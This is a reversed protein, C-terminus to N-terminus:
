TPSGTSHLRFIAAVLAEVDIPKAFHYEFGAALARQRDEARAFATIAIAPLPKAGTAKEAARVAAIFSYGDMGPLAIDSIIIDAPEKHLLELADSANAAQVVKAGAQLLFKSFVNRTETDDELFLIRVGALPTQGMERADAGPSRPRPEPMTGGVNPLPLRVVFTSGKDKGASQATIRGGHMEVLQRSISLGLGLGGHVRTSSPEAQRFPEFIRPLFDPAIGIGTDSVRIEVERGHRQLDVSVAGGTPTFKVANNVLNWVIQRLRASDSRVIGINPGCHVEVKISKERAVPSVAEVAQRVLGALDTERKELRLKGAAIRSTDLLDNVLQSQAEASRLIADLGDTVDEPSLSKTRLMKAWMMIASLPTRLEHGLVALFEDKMRAAATAEGLANMERQRLQVNETEVDRLTTIDVFTIVIGAIRNDQTRYPLARRMYARNSQSYVENELPVLHDLVSQADAILNPDTFKQALDKLPRGIDGPIIDVLDKMAPTYRRIRLQLDLFIVGIATSSLLSALDNATAEQEEVKSQLQSNVTTLEENLSQLEEKSTELEENTSQFEENVSTLEENTAKMEENATQLEEVTSQLEDRVRQLEEELGDRDKPASTPTHSPKAPEEHEEFAVLFHGAALKPDLPTVTIVVRRRGDPTESVGDRVTVPQNEAAARHLATRLTGRIPDRALILLERTPEGRPQELFPSCDGHYFVIQHMRDVTVAAPTFRELLMRNTLQALSARSPPRSEADQESAPAPSTHPIPFEVMGHRTPGVRRFIRWKKDLPEFLSEAGSTSESNGLFLAGGERLGFHLLALVRAQTRPELYILLNRCTCIDLRSFPPDQLVNQPAFVVLERLEKKVRYVPEEKDFFRALRAESIESEIGMPFIGNRAHSLARDATDTAFIKIDFHKGAAEAAEILLIGLSYAEEGSSCATVWCRLPAGDAREAVLPVIVSRYLADWAEADRFFGTVHILLDDALASVELPTQRLQKVYESFNLIQNLGMRREVRRLLTPRKYGSFDKRTRARLLALIESFHQSRPPEKVELDRGSAYPHRAYRVLLDPIDQPRLVFDALGADILSRPMPPFKATEPDQAIILGGVAKITQAGATGNSGMGSMIICIARERQEEALSRFFDDVPRNNGPKKLSEGLHLAGEKITLTNGPKIVYVHNPEIQMGDRVERVPMDTRKSLIDALLSERDPPLHQILVFAMGTDPSLHKFFEVFSELGGASAGIGIVPFPLRPPQEDDVPQAM